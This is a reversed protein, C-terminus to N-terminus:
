IEKTMEFRARPFYEVARGVWITEMLVFDRHFSNFNVDMKEPGIRGLERLRRLMNSNREEAAPQMNQRAKALTIHPRFRKRPEGEPFHDMIAKVFRSLEESEKADVFLVRGAQPPGFYDLRNWTLNLPPLERAFSNCALEIKSITEEPVEGFFRLTVHFNTPPVFYWDELYKKLESQIGELWSRVTRSIPLALFVRPDLRPKM